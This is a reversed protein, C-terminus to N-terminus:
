MLGALHARSWACMGHVLRLLEEGALTLSYEVRPNATHHDRRAVLGERELSRLTETLMKHSIAEISRHLEGFRREHDGIEELVRLAWKTSLAAFVRRAVAEARRQESEAM